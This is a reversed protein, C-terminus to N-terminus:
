SSLEIIIDDILRKLEEIETTQDAETLIEAAEIYYELSEANKRKEMKRSFSELLKLM